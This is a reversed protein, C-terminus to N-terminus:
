TGKNLKRRSQLDGLEKRKNLVQRRMRADFNAEDIDDDDDDNSHDFSTTEVDKNAGENKSSLAQRISLQVDRKTKDESSNQM